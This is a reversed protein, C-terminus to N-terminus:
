SHQTYKHSPKNLYDIQTSFHNDTKRKSNSIQLSILYNMTIQKEDFVYSYFVHYIMINKKKM